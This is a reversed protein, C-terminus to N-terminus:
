EKIRIVRKLSKSLRPTHVPKLKGHRLVLERKEDHEWTLVSDRPMPTLNNAECEDLHKQYEAETMVPADEGILDKVAKIAENKHRNEALVEEHHAKVHPVHKHGHKHTFHSSHHGCVKLPHHAHRDQKEPSLHRKHHDVAHQLVCGCTDVYAANGHVQCLTADPGYIDRMDRGDLWKLARNMNVVTDCASIVGREEESIGERESKRLLTAITIRARDSNIKSWEDGFASKLQVEVTSSIPYRQGDDAIFVAM